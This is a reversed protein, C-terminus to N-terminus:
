ANFHLFLSKLMHYNSWLFAHSAGSTYSASNIDLLIKWFTIIWIFSLTSLVMPTTSSCPKTTALLSSAM